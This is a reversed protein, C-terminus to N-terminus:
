RSSAEDTGADAGKTREDVLLLMGHREVPNRGLVEPTAM